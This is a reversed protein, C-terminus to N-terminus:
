RVCNCTFTNTISDLVIVYDLHGTVREMSKWHEVKKMWQLIQIM